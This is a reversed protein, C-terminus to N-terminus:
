TASFYAANLLPRTLFNVITGTILFIVKFAVLSNLFPRKLCGRQLM